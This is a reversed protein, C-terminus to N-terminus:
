TSKARPADQLCLRHSGLPAKIALAPLVSGPAVQRSFSSPGTPPAPGGLNGLGAPSGRWREAEWAGRWSGLWRDPCLGPFSPPLVLPPPTRPPPTAQPQCTGLADPPRPSTPAGAAPLLHPQIEVLPQPQQRSPAEALPSLLFWPVDASDLGVPAPLPTVPQSGGGKQQAPSEPCGSALTRTRGVAWGRGM